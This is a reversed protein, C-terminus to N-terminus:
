SWLDENWERHGERWAMNYRTERVEVKFCWIREAEAQGFCDPIYVGNVYRYLQDAIKECGLHDLVTLTLIGQNQMEQYKPLDPDDHAILTTHDFQRKLEAKLEKLGGYDVVWGRADLQDAGFYFKFGLSYGHNRNCNTDARWQKYAVPFEDIYEKTSVYRYTVPTM